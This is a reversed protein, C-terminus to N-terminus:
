PLSDDADNILLSKSEERKQRARSSVRSHWYRLVPRRVYDWVGLYLCFGLYLVFALALYGLWATSPLLLLTLYINIVIIGVGVIWVVISVLKHNVFDGM